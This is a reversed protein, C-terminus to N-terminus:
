QIYTIVNQDHAKLKSSCRVGADNAHACNHVGIPNAPCADLRPEFGACNVNDLIILGTGQGFSAQGIALAGIM